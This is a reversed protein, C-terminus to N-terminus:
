QQKLNILFEFTEYDPIGKLQRKLQLAGAIGPIDYLSRQLLSYDMKGAMYCFILTLNTHIKYFARDIDGQMAELSQEYNLVYTDLTTTNDDNRIDDYSSTRHNGDIIVMKTTPEHPAIIIPATNKNAINFHAKNVEKSVNSFERIQRVLLPLKPNKDREIIKLAKSVSWTIRYSGLNYISYAADFCQDIKDIDIEEPLKSLNRVINMYDDFVRDPLPCKRILPTNFVKSMSEFMSSNLNFDYYGYTKRPEKLLVDTSQKQPKSELPLPYVFFGTRPDDSNPDEVIMSVRCYKNYKKLLTRSSYLDSGSFRLDFSVLALVFLVLFLKQFILYMILGILIMVLSPALLCLIYQNRTFPYGSNEICCQGIVKGKSKRKRIKCTGGCIRMFVMHINEHFSGVILMTIVVFLIPMIHNSIIYGWNTNSILAIRVLEIFWFVSAILIFMFSIGYQVQKLKKSARGFEDFVEGFVDKNLGPYETKKYKLYYDGPGRQKAVIVNM